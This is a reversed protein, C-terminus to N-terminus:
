HVIRTEPLAKPHGCSTRQVVFHAMKESLAMKALSVRQREGTADREPASPKLYQSALNEPLCTQHMIPMPGKHVVSRKATGDGNLPLRWAAGLDGM